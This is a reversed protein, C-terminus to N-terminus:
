SMLINLTQILGINTAPINKFGNILDDFLIATQFAKCCLIYRNHKPTNASNM